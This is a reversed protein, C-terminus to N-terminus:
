IECRELDTIAASLAQTLHYCAKHNAGKSNDAVRGDPDCRIFWEGYEPDAFQNFIVQVQKILWNWYKDDQTVRYARALAALTESQCWYVYFLDHEGDPSGFLAMGVKDNWGYKM